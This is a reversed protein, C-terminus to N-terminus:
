SGTEGGRGCVELGYAEAAEDARDDLEEQVVVMRQFLSGNGEEAAEIMAVTTEVIGDRAEFWRLFIERGDAPPDGLQRIDDLQGRIVPLVKRLFPGTEALSEPAELGTLRNDERACVADVREIFEARTVESAPSPADTSGSEGNCAGLVLAIAVLAAVPRGM